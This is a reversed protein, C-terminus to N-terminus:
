WKKVVLCGSMIDHLAQKKDTFGALIYGIYLIMGSIIKGFYRKTARGFSIRNGDLDTVIIGLVMKGATARTPSSEMIAYYLWTPLIFVVNAVGFAIWNAALNTDESLDYFFGKQFFLWIFFFVTILWPIGLILADIWSAIWRLWFDAYEVSPSKSILPYPNERRYQAPVQPPEEGNPLDFESSTEPPYLANLPELAQLVETASQYREVPRYRVMKTLIDALEDSMSVLHRWSIEGTGPDSHQLQLEMASLGTLAQIGIMGLSYLDSSLVARGQQQESAMYGMKGIPLTSKIQGQETFFQSAQVQKVAGFDVLVLSEDERRRIINDPQIDRHIILNCHVFGLVDLIDRLMQVVKSESWQRGPFLERSLPHGDIFEQVLFFEQNEVFYDLLQPIQEHKGLRELIEAEQEFLRRANDWLKHRETPSLNPDTSSALRLHKVVCTPQGPRQTDQARYTIAQGGGGLKEVVKYRGGLLQSEIIEM